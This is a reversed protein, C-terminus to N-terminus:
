EYRKIIHWGYKSAALDYNCIGVEGVQLSFATDGFGTVMQGRPMWSYLALKKMTESAFFEAKADDMTMTKANVKGILETQLATAATELEAKEALQAESFEPPNQRNNLMSYSGPPNNAISGPDDSHVRVLEGFDEGNQAKELIEKALVEAEEKTRTATTGTGAFSVLIHQIRVREAEGKLDFPPRKVEETVSPTGRIVRVEDVVARQLPDSPEGSMMNPKTKIEAITELVQVGHVMIGFSAYKGDLAHVSPADSDTIVFYQGSASDPSPGRAMSLVGYRHAWKPDNSFEGKILGHPGKGSAQNNSSGGQIMFDRLIRHFVKANYFGEDCYRLYNRVTIPAKEPWLVFTMTGIAQQDVSIDMEIFFEGLQEDTIEGSEFNFKPARKPKYNVELKPAVPDQDLPPLNFEPMEDAKTNQNSSAANADGSNANNESVIREGSNDLNMTSDSCAALVLLPLILLKKM